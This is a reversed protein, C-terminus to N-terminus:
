NLYMIAHRREQTNESSFDVTVRINAEVDQTHGMQQKEGKGSKQPKQRQQKTASKHGVKQVGVSQLGVPEETWPIKWALTSPPTAM